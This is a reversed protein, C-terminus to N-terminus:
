GNSSRGRVAYRALYVLGVATWVIARLRRVLALSVGWAPGYGLLEGFVVAQGAEDTGIRGPVYFFLASLVKSLAEVMLVEVGGLRLGMAWLIIYTELLGLGQSVVDWFFMWRFRQRHAAYFELLQAEASELPQRRREVWRRLPTRELASLLGAIVRVRRRLLVRGVAWLLVFLGVMIWGLRRVREEMAVYLLAPVLGAVMVLLSTATYAGAELVASGLGVGLPLQQRLLAAKTPESLLPGAFTLYGISQGALRARFMEGFSPLEREAAFAYRWALTRALYRGGSVGLVVLFSWGVEELRGLVEGWGIRDLLVVFLAAGLAFFIWEVRRM